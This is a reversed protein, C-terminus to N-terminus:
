FGQVINYDKGEWNWSLSVFYEKEPILDSVPFSSYFRLPTAEGLPEAPYDTRQYLRLRLTDGKTVASDAVLNVYHKGAAGQIDMVSNLMNICGGALWVNEISIGDTGLTDPVAKGDLVIPNKYLTTFCQLMQAKYHNDGLSSIVDFVAYVRDGATWEPASFVYVNGDDAKLAGDDQVYGMTYCRYLVPSLEDCGITLVLSLLVAPVFKKM